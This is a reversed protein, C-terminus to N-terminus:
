VAELVDQPVGIVIMQAQQQSADLRADLGLYRARREMIALCRDVNWDASKNLPDQAKKFQIQWLADLRALEMQRVEDALPQITRQLERQVANWAAGSSAYGSMQAITKWGHGELALKMATAARAGANVDRTKVGQIEKKRRPM